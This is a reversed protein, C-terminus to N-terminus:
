PPRLYVSTAPSSSKQQHDSVFISFFVVIEHDIQLKRPDVLNLTVLLL